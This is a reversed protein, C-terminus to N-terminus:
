RDLHGILILMAEQRRTVVQRLAEQAAKVEKEAQQRYAALQAMKERIQELRATKSEILDILEEGLREGETPPGGKRNQSPRWWGSRTQSEAKPRPAPRQASTPRRGRRATHRDDRRGRRGHRVDQYHSPRSSRPTVSSGGSTASGAVVSVMFVGVTSRTRRRVAELEQFRPEIQQWQEDTAQLLDRLVANSCESLETFQGELPRWPKREGRLALLAELHRRGSRNPDSHPVSSAFASVPPLGTMTCLVLALATLGILVTTEVSVHTKM